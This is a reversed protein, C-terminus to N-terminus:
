EIFKLAEEYSEEFRNKFKFTASKEATRYILNGQSIRATAIEPDYIDRGNKDNNYIIIEVNKITFPPTKIFQQIENNKNIQSLLELASKVLLERLQEKTHSCKTDFCLTVEQIPGGPMAAGSGCAKLNYKKEIIKATNASISNVLQEGRSPQYDLQEKSMIFGSFILSFITFVFFKM